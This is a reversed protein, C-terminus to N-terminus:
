SDSFTEEALAFYFSSRLEFIASHSLCFLGPIKRVTLIPVARGLTYSNCIDKKAGTLGEGVKRGMVTARDQGQVFIRQNERSLRNIENSSDIEGSNQGNGLFRRIENEGSNSHSNTNHDVLAVYSPIEPRSASNGFESDERESHNSGQMIDLNEVDPLMEAERSKRSKIEQKRTTPM